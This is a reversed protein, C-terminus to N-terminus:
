RRAMRRRQVACRMHLPAGAIKVMSESSDIRAGCALCLPAQRPAGTSKVAASALLASPESRTM